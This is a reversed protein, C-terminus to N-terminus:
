TGRPKARTTPAAQAPDEPWLHKPYRAKMEKRTEAWGGSWFGPLDRTVAIPRHAPSLLQFVIPETGGALMPHVALGYMEQVRVAVSPGQLAGYDIPHSTGAPSVFRAPAARELAQQAPWDLMALLASALDLHALSSVGALAPSLWDDLKEILAMESMDPWTDQDRARLFMVRQRLSQAHDSWALRGLGEERLVAILAEGLGAGPPVACPASDLVIAGLRTVSRAKLVGAALDLRVEVARTIQSAFLDEIDAANLRAASAIRGARAAGQLEGVALFDAGALVDAPDVEGGRGGALIFGGRRDRAKAVREPWALALARGAYDPDAGEDRASGAQAAWGAAQGRAKRARESGDRLLGSVRAAVDVAAGGLGREQLVAAVCAASFARGEEGARVIMHALRPPLGFGSLRNGHPTLRGDDDLADLGQLGKVAEKWAPEPPRDLWRLAAPDQVGWAALTLALTSLDADAIEPRDFAPLAGTEVESWLRYCVGPATRGARGRRQEAAARSARVTVLRTLGTDPEYAPRRSLGCDVVARVGAITVSTEAISTSVVIKRRGPLASGIARDQEAPELGGHLAVVDVDGPLVGGALAEQVRRIEAAGPVFVLVDGDTEALARRVARATQVELQASPDRGLHITQVPYTRGASEIVAAGDLLSAVRAGDLTASMVVLRLDERLGGQADLALALGLDGDLHREHAEDFVVCAVGRLEPDALIRRTFVGETVVEVRTDPGIRSDLRVAYGVEGGVAGGRLAAMRTAAARAALRRPALMIIKQGLAWPQDLLALPVLTTKGAGPPAVLVANRGTALASLLEPLAAEVPLTVVLAGRVPVRRSWACVM